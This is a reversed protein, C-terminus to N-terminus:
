YRSEQEYNLAITDRVVALGYAMYAEQNDYFNFILQWFIKM